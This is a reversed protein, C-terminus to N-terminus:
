WHVNLNQSPFAKTDSRYFECSVAKTSVYKQKLFKCYIPGEDDDRHLNEGHYRCLFCNRIKKKAHYANELEDIYIQPGGHPLIKSFAIDGKELRLKYKKPTDNLVYAGGDSKLLFFFLKKNCSPFHCRTKSIKKFNLFKVKPNTQTILRQKILRLDNEEELSIEIIRTGSHIKEVTSVHTVVFEIYLKEGNRNSLLVDPIFLGDPTEISINPFLKVLDFKILKQDLECTIGFEDKCSTCEWYEYLEIDFRYGTVLCDTYFQIFMRKALQHLYTEPNCNSDVEHRFHKKRIDGLVPRLSKGCSICRYFEKRTEDTKLLSNINQLKDKSNLAFQYKVTFEKAM